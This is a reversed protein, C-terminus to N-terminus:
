FKVGTRRARTPVLSPHVSYVYACSPMCMFHKFLFPKKTIKIFSSVPRVELAQTGVALGRSGFGADLRMRVLLSLDAERFTSGVRVSISAADM